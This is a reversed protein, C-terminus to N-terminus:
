RERSPAHPKRGSERSGSAGRERQLGELLARAPRHDPRLEVVKVLWRKAEEKEGRRLLLRALEFAPRPLQDDLAIAKRSDQEAEAWRELRAFASARGVYSLADDPNLALCRDYLRIAQETRGLDVYVQALRRAHQTSTPQEAVLKEYIKAAQERDGSRAAIEALLARHGPSADAVPELVAKAEEDRGRRHLFSALMARTKVLRESSPANKLAARLKTIAGEEDTQSTANADLAVLADDWPNEALLRTTERIAEAPKGMALLSRARMVGLDFRRGPLAEELEDILAVAEEGRNAMTLASALEFRVTPSDTREMLDRYADVADGYRELRVYIPALVGLAVPRAHPDAAIRKLEAIADGVKGEWALIEARDVASVAGVLKRPDPEQGAEYRQAQAVYGLAALKESVVSTSETGAPAGEPRMEGYVATLRGVVDPHQAALNALERPDALLDYLEIPNPEATLKWRESRVGGIRAWGYAYTPVLTEFYTVDEATRSPSGPQLPRGSADPLTEGVAALITPTVDATTVFSKSRAAGDFGPGAVILPVHLTSDYAVMGHALEDHEGLSEGHDGVVIVLTPRGRAAANVGELLRGIHSDVYALAGDYSDPMEDFPPPAFHPLHVDYYHAWVFFPRDTTRRVWELARDTTPKAERRHMAFALRSYDRAMEDDYTEFGQDLGLRRDLAVSSVFAATQYGRSGLREALMELSAGVVFNMNDHVGHRDPDLGTLVTVHSALTIPASAYAREFLMGRSALRDLNPTRAAPHGMAGLRDARTTDLTILVVNPEVPASRCAVLCFFLLPVLTRSSVATTRM